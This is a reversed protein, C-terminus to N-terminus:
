ATKEKIREHTRRKSRVLVPGIVSFILLMAFFTEKSGALWDGISSGLIGFARLKATEYAVYVFSGALICGSNSSRGLVVYLVIPLSTTFNFDDPVVISVFNVFIAGAVGAVGTNAAFVTRQVWAVDVGCMSAALADDNVARIQRGLVSRDLLQLFAYLVASMGVAIAAYLSVYALREDLGNSYVLYPLEVGQAGGLFDANALINQVVEAFVLTGVAFYDDRVRSMARATLFGAGAAVVGGLFMSGFLLSGGLLRDGWGSPVAFGLHPYVIRVVVISTYGGIAAYGQHGLSFLNVRWIQNLSQTYLLAIGLFAAHYLIFATDM